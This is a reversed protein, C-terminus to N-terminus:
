DAHVLEILGQAIVLIGRFVSHAFDDVVRHFGASGADIEANGSAFLFPFSPGFGSNGLDGHGIVATAHIEGGDAFAQSQAFGDTGGVPFPRSDSAEAHAHGQATDGQGPTHFDIGAHVRFLIKEIRVDVQVLDVGALQLLQRNGNGFCRRFLVGSKQFALGSGDDKQFVAVTDVAIQLPQGMIQSPGVAFKNFPAQFQEHMETHVPLGAKLRLRNIKM